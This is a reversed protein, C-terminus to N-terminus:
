GVIAKILERGNVPLVNVKVGLEREVDAVRVDDLFIDDNARLMNEPIILQDGLEKERLQKIIDCGTLLGTVTVNHGFFDNEIEYVNVKVNPYSGTLEDCLKKMNKYSCVGTVISIEKKYINNNKRKLIKLYDYFEKNFKAIMGVGNEIQPFGEYEKYEPIEIEAKVYFEDALFVLNTGLKKKFTKQWGEVQSIVESSKDKDFPILNYLGDRYKTLGVPVVSISNLNPSLKSLDELTRDLELKDNVDYCLVIQANLTIDADKLIRLYELVKGANKNNLMKVRLEPNTTHVSINLPSIRYMIIKDIDNQTLNTLSIYNGQLFSLRSDDDKFYISERMGKPNQDIFCFICKNKCSRADCLLPDEFIIGLDEDYEKEIELEWEEGNFKQIVVVIYDDNILYKYEIIDEVPSNNIAILFDGPEIGLEEAISDPEISKIKTNIKNM